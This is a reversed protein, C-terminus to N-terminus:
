GLTAARVEPAVLFVLPSVALLSIHSFDNVPHYPTRAPLVPNTGHTSTTGLLLTRGDPAAKAVFDSGISGAAGAKNEVITRQGMSVTLREALMRAILDTAGGPPFPVVVRTPTDSQAFAPRLGLASLALGATMTRRDM